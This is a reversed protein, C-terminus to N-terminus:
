KAMYRDYASQFAKLVEQLGLKDLEAVFADFEDLSKEGTIFKLAAEEVYKKIVSQRDKYQEVEEETYSLKPVSHKMGETNEIWKYVADAAVKENKAKVFAERQIGIGVGTFGTYKALAASQGLPDGTILETWQINGEADKTYTVGEEGFNTYDNGEETFFYNIWNLVLPIKEEDIKSNLFINGLNDYRSAATQIMSTPEGAATRLYEMGIWEASSGSERADAVFTSLQSMASFVVGTKNDAVKQRVMTNDATFIDLDILGMDYWRALYEIYAKWEPQVNACQIKGNDDVYTGYIHGVMADTGACFGVYKFYSKSSVFVAGYKDKFAKLVKEMDDMTVPVDLNCEDLWDKRIMPGQYTINYTSEKFSPIYWFRGEEDIISKRLDANEPKNIYEWFDPAYEPLYDTLELIVEDLIWENVMNSSISNREWVEPRDKEDALLLDLNTYGSAGPPNAKWDVDVGTKEVLKIHFPSEERGSLSAHAPFVNVSYFTFTKDTNLPYTVGVVEAETTGEEQTGEAGKTTEPASTKKDDEGNGCATVSLIMIGALTLSLLKSFWKKKMKEGKM